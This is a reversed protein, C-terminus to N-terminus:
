PVAPVPVRHVEDVLIRVHDPPTSKHIGHGLNFIYGPHRAGETAVARVAARLGDEPGLLRCPDLNGQLTVDPGLLARADRLPLRWDVGIVDGGAERMLPLLTASETGFHILPVATRERVRAFVRASHPLVYERYDAPTLLGVWSDFLQLAQAGAEAQAALYDGVADALRELLAHWAAPERYMFSKALHFDRSGEGQIAYCALTFPAGSFGILPVRGDLTRATLRIAELTYPLAEAAPRAQLRALDAPARIPNTFTPGEGAVFRLDLGMEMPLTLIDAFIIGADLDFANLPQLTVETALEPTRIMTLIDHRSRLARYEPMYRGAQRMLWVPLRSVSQRRAARLFPHSAPAPM